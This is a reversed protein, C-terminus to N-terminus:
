EARSARGQLLETNIKDLISTAARTYAEDSFKECVYALARAGCQQLLGPDAFIREFAMCLAEVLDGHLVIGTQGDVVCNRMEGVPTAIVPLGANMAEHVALCMGEFRSPQTYVHLSALFTVVDNSFGPLSVTGELDLRAIQRELEDRDPGEGLITLRIRGALHPHKKLFAALADILVGYNKEGRLRGVSGVHLVSQGDWGAARPAEPNCRYLPWVKVQDAPIQMDERLFNVVAQSDAIWLRSMSKMRYIYRKVDASNKWSVVPIGAIRGGWQGIRTGRSLSTWIVDPRDSLLRILFALVTIPVSRRRRCLVKYSLGAAKLRAAAAAMDRPECFSITVQHGLRQLTGVIDPM